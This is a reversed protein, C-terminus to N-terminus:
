LGFALLRGSNQGFSGIYLMGNVISAPGLFTEGSTSSTYDFLTKGDATAMAVIHSGESVVAVGPVVTVAGFVPGDQLCHEWISAGTAPNLARLSGHCDTNGITTGKTAVYLYRGDWASPAITDRSYACDKCRLPVKWLPGQSLATRDFAYYTGNKNVLGVLQKTVGGITANFLTPTSGFDGDGVEEARPVRWSDIFSLDSLRLKVLAVAYPETKRNCRLGNGSAFYISGTAADITPSGWVSAGTCDDPVTNFTHTIAGTAADMQVFKGQVLPCDDLSSVGEYVSDNYVVPSSWLFTDPPEGLSTSWITAGTAADLAYLHANGGAVFVALTKKGKIVVSTVTATDFVGSGKLNCNQRSTGLNATWVQKDDLDTAHEIGDGSGWYIIGNAVVPQSFVREGAEATWHLKLHAVTTPNIQTENPNYGGNGLLYSSWDVSVPAATHPTTLLQEIAFAATLLSSFSVLLTLVGIVIRLSARKTQKGKM